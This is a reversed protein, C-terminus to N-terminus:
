QIICGHKPKLCLIIILVFFYFLFDDAAAAYEEGKERISSIIDKWTLMKRFTEINFDNDM